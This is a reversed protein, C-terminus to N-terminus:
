SRWPPEIPIPLGYAVCFAKMGGWFDHIGRTIPRWPENWFLDQYAPPRRLWKGVELYAEYIKKVDALERYEIGHYRLLLGLRHPELRLEKALSAFESHVALKETLFERTYEERPGPYRKKLYGGYFGYLFGRELLKSVRERSLGIKKGVVSMSGFREYLRKCRLIKHRTEPSMGHSLRRKAM